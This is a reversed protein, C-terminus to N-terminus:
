GINKYRRSRFEELINESKLLKDLRGELRELLQDFSEQSIVQGQNNTQLSFGKVEAEPVHTSILLRLFSYYERLQVTINRIEHRVDRVDYEVLVEEIAAVLTDAPTPKELLRYVGLDVAEFVAQKDLYGSLLISPFFFGLKQATRIMEVGSLGPMKLDTILVEFPPTRHDKLFKLFQNPSSFTTIHYHASLIEQYIQLLGSEDDVLIIKRQPSSQQFKV